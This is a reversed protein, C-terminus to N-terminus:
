SILSTIRRAIADTPELVSINPGAVDAIQQKIWHYHTCGLVIVDVEQQKLSRVTSEIDLSYSQQKEIASAWLSCDPEIVEVGKAWTDKLEKYRASHLTGPTACVAIHGTHTIHAAPKIMPEIGIFLVTPYRERLTRIAVTTATNCAIVIANCKMALLPQIAAVTLDIIETEPRSGYPVHEHDDISVIEADPLLERLKTAMAEGGIGSDFIGILM